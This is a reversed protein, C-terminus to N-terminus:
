LLLLLLLLLHLNHLRTLLHDSRGRRHCLGLLDQRLAGLSLHHSYNVLLSLSNLTFQHILVSLQDILLAPEYILLSLQNVLLSLYNICLPNNLLSM